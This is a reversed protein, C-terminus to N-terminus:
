AAGRERELAQHLLSKIYTQYPIGRKEALTKATEIDRVPLRLTILKTAGRAPALRRLRGEKKAKEFLETIAEPHTDWWQAEEQESRFKPIKTAM